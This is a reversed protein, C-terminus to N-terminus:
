AAAKGPAGYIKFFCKGEGEGLYKCFCCQRFFTPHRRHHLDEVLTACTILACYLDHENVSIQNEM